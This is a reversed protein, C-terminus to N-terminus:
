SMQPNSLTMPGRSPSSAWWSSPSSRFRISRNPGAQQNVFSLFWPNFCRAQALWRYLIPSARDTKRTIILPDFTVKGAGVGSSQSGINLVQAIDFSYNEVEFINNNPPFALASNQANNSFDVQSESDLFLGNADQFWMYASIAM